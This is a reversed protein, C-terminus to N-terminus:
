RLSNKVCKLIELCLLIANEAYFANRASLVDSLLTMPDFYFGSTAVGFVFVKKKFCHTRTGCQRAPANKNRLFLDRTAGKQVVEQFIVKWPPGSTSKEISTQLPIPPRSSMGPNGKNGPDGPDRPDPTMPRLEPGGKM